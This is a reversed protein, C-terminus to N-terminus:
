EEVVTVPIAALAARKPLRVTLVGQRYEARSLEGKVPCPLIITRSFPGWFCEGHLVASEADRDLPSRRVGRITILDNHIFIEIDAAAAGAMTSVVALELGLDVVDIALQGEVVPSEWPSLFESGALAAVAAAGETPPLRMAFLATNSQNM